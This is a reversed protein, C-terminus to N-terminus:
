KELYSAELVAARYAQWGSKFAATIIPSIDVTDIEVDNEDLFRITGHEEICDNLREKYEKKFFNIMFLFFTENQGYTVGITLVQVKLVPFFCFKMSREYSPPLTVPHVQVM